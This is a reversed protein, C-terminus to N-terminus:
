PQASLAGAEAETGARRMTATVRELAGRWVERCGPKWEPGAVEELTDLMCDVFWDYMRGEVGYEQHSKGMAELNDDLWSEDELHAVVSGLTERIMEERESIGHEGFLECVEPHRSFFLEYFRDVLGSERGALTELSSMLLDRDDM